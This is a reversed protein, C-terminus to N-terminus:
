RIEIEKKKLIKKKSIVLRLIGNKYEADIKDKDAIEPLDIKRYFGSYARTYSYRQKDDCTDENDKEFRKEAKIVVGTDTLSISIDEKSVGPIEVAISFNNENESFDAWARRYNSSENFDREQFDPYSFFRNMKRQMKRMENWFNREM